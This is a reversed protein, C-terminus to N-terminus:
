WFGSKMDFNSFITADYLRNLLDRKNPIPYRIWEYISDGAFNETIITKASELHLNSPTQKSYYPIEKKYIKNYIL